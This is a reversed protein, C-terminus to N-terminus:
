DATVVEMRETIKQLRRKEVDEVMKRVERKYEESSNPDNFVREAHVQADNVIKDMATDASEDKKRIAYPDIYVAKLFLWLGSLGIAILPASVTLVSKYPSTEPMGDALAAIVTGIGGGAAGAGVVNTANSKRSATNRAM